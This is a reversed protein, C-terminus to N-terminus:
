VIKFLRKFSNLVIKFLRKNGLVSDLRTLLLRKQLSENIPVRRITDRTGKHKISGTIDFNNILNHSLVKRM